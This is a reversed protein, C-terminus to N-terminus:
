WIDVNCINYCIFLNIFSHGSLSIFQCVSETYYYVFIQQTRLYKLNINIPQTNNSLLREGSRKDNLNTILSCPWQDWFTFPAQPPRWHELAMIGKYSTYEERLSSSSIHRWQCNLRSSLYRQVFWSREKGCQKKDDQFWGGPIVEKPKLSIWWMRSCRVQM